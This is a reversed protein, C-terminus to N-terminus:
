GRSRGGRCAGRPRARGERAAEPLRHQRRGPAALGRHGRRRLRRDVRAPAVRHGHHTAHRDPDRHDQRALGAAGEAGRRGGRGRGAGVGGRPSGAQGSAESRATSGRALRDLAGALGHEEIARVRKAADRASSTYLWYSRRDVELRPIEAESARRLYIEHKPVLGRIQDLEPRTLQFTEALDQPFEPNALFLRTPTAELLGRAAEARSLNGGSQTALLLAANKKRWTKAAEALYASVTPDRLFKWAEDVVAIKVRGLDSPDDIEHRMKELYYGLATEVMDNHQAASALDVVHWEGWTDAEGAAPPNDFVAGWTGSGVWRSMAPKMRQLLSALFAPLYLVKQKPPGARYPTPKRGAQKPVAVKREMGAALGQARFERALRTLVAQGGAAAAEGPSAFELVIRGEGDVGCPRQARLFRSDAESLGANCELAGIGKVYAIQASARAQRSFGPTSQHQM